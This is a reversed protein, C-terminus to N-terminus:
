TLWGVTHTHTYVGYRIQENTSPCRPKSGYRPRHLLAATFVSTRMEKKNAQESM